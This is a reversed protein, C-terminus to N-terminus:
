GLVPVCVNASSAGSEGMERWEKINSVLQEVAVGESSFQNWVEFLPQVVYELFCSQLKAASSLKSRDMAPTVFSGLKAENDGQCM